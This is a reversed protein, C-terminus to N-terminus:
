KMIMYTALCKAVLGGQDDRVDADGLAIRGGKNIIRAEATINGENFPSVYNINMEVTTFREGKEVLGLLAMAVASDAPSYIAGGHAIGYPHTLKKAFPLQLKAWGIKVDLMEIGLLTWYPQNSKIKEMLARRFSPALEEYESVEAVCKEGL